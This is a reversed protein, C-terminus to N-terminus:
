NHTWIRVIILNSHDDLIVETDESPKELVMMEHEEIRDNRYHMAGKAIYFCIIDCKSYINFPGKKDSDICTLYGETQENLMLNFDTAKGKSKTEWNGLFIDSEFPGLKSNHHNNHNLELTGDLVMLQRKINTLPTFNSEEVEITAKSLRFSFDLTKYNGNQPYIYIESTTGGSWNKTKIGEARIIKM